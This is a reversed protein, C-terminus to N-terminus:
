PFQGSDGMQSPPLMFKSLGHTEPDCSGEETLRPTSLATYVRDLGLSRTIEPVKCNGVVTGTFDVLGADATNVKLM